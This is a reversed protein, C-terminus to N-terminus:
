ELLVNLAYENISKISNLEFSSIKSFIFFNFKEYKFSVKTTLHSLDPFWLKEDNFISFSAPAIISFLVFKFTSKSFAVVVIIISIIM